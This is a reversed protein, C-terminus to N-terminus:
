YDGTQFLTLSGQGNATKASEMSSPVHHQRPFCNDSSPRSQQLLVPPVPSSAFLQDNVPDVNGSEMRKIYLRYKQLHSAVNERTLGDINMLQMVTKPVANNFGLYAVADVFRKHLQPTWVIRPRRRTRAPDSSDVEVSIPQPPTPNPQPHPQTHNHPNHINFFNALKPTILTQSIPILEEQKPLQQEWTSFWNSPNDRM